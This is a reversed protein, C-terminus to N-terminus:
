KEVPTEEPNSVNEEEDEEVEIEVYQFRNGNEDVGEELVVYGDNQPATEEEPVAEAAAKEEALRDVYLKSGIQNAGYLWLFVLAAVISVAGFVLSAKFGTDGIFISQSDDRLLECIVRGVGYWVVYVGFMQGDYKRKKRLFHLLVFGLLNWVSEYLFTPHVYVTKKGNDLGMRLIFRTTKGYLERNIFNGWRGVASGICLAPSALDMLALFSKKTKRCYLFEFIVVLLLGGYIASGGNKINLINLLTKQWASAKFADFNNIVYFLRAGIVCSPVGIIVADLVTDMDYGFKKAQRIAYFVALAFGVAIIVGYWYIRFTGVTFYTSPNIKFDSGLIPFKIIANSM